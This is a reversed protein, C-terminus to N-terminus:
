SNDATYTTMQRPLMPRQICLFVFMPLTLATGSLGYSACMNAQPSIQLLFADKSEKGLLASISRWLLKSFKHATQKQVWKYPDWHSRPRLPPDAAARKSPNHTRIGGSAYIDAKHINHTTRYLHWRRAPWGCSDETDLSHPRLTEYPPGHGPIPDLRWLSFFFFIVRSISKTFIHLFLSM